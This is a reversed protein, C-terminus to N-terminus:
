KSQPELKTPVADPTYPQPHHQYPDDLDTQHDYDAILDPLQEAPGGVLRKEQSGRDRDGTRRDDDLHEVVGAIQFRDPPPQDHSYQHDLVKGCHHKEAGQRAYCGGACGARRVHHRDDPLQDEKDHHRQYDAAKKSVPNRRDQDAEFRGLHQQEATESEAEAKRQQGVFQAEGRGCTSKKDACNEAVRYMGGPDGPYRRGHAIQECRDEEYRYPHKGVEGLQALVQDGRDDDSRDYNEALQDGSGGACKKRTM